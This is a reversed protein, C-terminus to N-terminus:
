LLKNVQPTDRQLDKLVDKIEYKAKKQGTIESDDIFDSDSFDQNKGPTFSINEKDNSSTSNDSETETEDNETSLNKELDSSNENKEDQAMSFDSHFACIYFLKGDAKGTYDNIDPDWWHVGILNTKGEITRKKCLYCIGNFRAPFTGTKAM